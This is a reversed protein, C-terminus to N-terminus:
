NEQSWRKMADTSAEHLWARLGDIVVDVDLRALLDDPGHWEATIQYPNPEFTITITPREIAM